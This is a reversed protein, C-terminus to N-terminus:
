SFERRRYFSHQAILRQTALHARPAGFFDASFKTERPEAFIECLEDLACAVIASSIRSSFAARDPGATQYDCCKEVHRALKKRETEIVNERKAARCDNTSNIPSRTALFTFATGVRSADSSESM